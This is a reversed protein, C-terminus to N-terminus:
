DYIVIQAKHFQKTKLKKNLEKIMNFRHIYPGCKIRRVYKYMQIYLFSYKSYVEIKIVKQFPFLFLKKLTSM